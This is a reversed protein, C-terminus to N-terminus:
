SRKKPRREHPRPTTPPTPVQLLAAIAAFAEPRRRLKEVIRVESPTLELQYREETSRVLESATTRMAMAVEDLDKLRVANEGALVKQLWVQSKDLDDAFDRQSVGTTEMWARMRDRVRTAPTEEADGPNLPPRMKTAPM